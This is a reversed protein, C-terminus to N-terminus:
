RGTTGGDVSRYVGKLTGAVMMKPDSASATLRAFRDARAM